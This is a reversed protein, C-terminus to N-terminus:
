CHCVVSGVALTPAEHNGVGIHAKARPGIVSAIWAHVPSSFARPLLFDDLFDRWPRFIVDNGLIAPAGKMLGIKVQRKARPIDISQDNRASRDVDTDCRGDIGRAVEVVTDDHYAIGAAVRM